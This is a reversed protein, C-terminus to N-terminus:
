AARRTRRARRYRAMQARLFSVATAIVAADDAYGLVPIVDPILDIPLIFYLLAGIAVLKGQAPARPDALFDYLARLDAEFKVKAERIKAFLEEEIRRRGAEEQSGGYRGQTDHLVREIVRQVDPVFPIVDAM